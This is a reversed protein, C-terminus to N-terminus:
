LAIINAFLVISGLIRRYFALCIVWFDEQSKSSQDKINTLGQYFTQDKEKLDFHRAKSKKQRHNHFRCCHSMHQKM